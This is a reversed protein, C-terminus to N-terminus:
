RCVCEISEDSPTRLILLKEVCEHVIRVNVFKFKYLEGIFKINGFSRIKFKPDMQEIVTKIQKKEEESGAFTM